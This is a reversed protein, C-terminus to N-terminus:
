KHYPSIERYGCSLCIYGKPSGNWSGDYRLTYTNGLPFTDEHLCSDQKERLLDDINLSKLKDLQEPTLTLVDKIDTKRESAPSWLSM